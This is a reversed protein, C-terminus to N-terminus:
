PRAAPIETPTWGLAEAEAFAQRNASELQRYRGHLHPPVLEATPYPKYFEEDLLHAFATGRRVMTQADRTSHALIVDAVDIAAQYRGQDMLHEMVTTAM